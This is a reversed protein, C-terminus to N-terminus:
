QDGASRPYFSPFDLLAERVTALAEYAKRAAEIRKTDPQPNRKAM